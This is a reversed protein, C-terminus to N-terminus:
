PEGYLAEELAAVAKEYSPRGGFARVIEVLTGMKDFPHVRLLDITELGEVAEDVFKDLLGELVARALGGYADLIKRVRASRARERRTLLPDSFGVYALVDVTAYDDGFAIALEGVGVGRRELEALIAAKEGRTAWRRRLEGLSAFLARLTERAHEALSAEIRKGDPGYREVNERVVMVGEDDIYIKPRRGGRRTAESATPLPAEGAAAPADGSPEPPVIPDGENPEYIQEPPGDFTRDEFLRTAGRFDMITFWMKGYDERVRTGRGIIQKFETISSIEQDIVILKCTQVDVGTTLLKSTTAIVPYRSAPLAFESVEAKGIPDDGTIKRVYRRDKLYEDANERALASRMREAHEIDQCFVITKAYPETERLYASVKRAVLETRQELVLSRDFEPRQYRRNKVQQGYKDRKGEGPIYGELDKDLDVRIVKYPALYGDEIGEKLSYTYLPEGFYDINSVEATEKPTATLGIQTASAFYNLIERWASNEAASGRHCEDVIVLDFFGSSFQKYINKEEDSGSVAQYLALYIEYSKDATRHEIKTMAPGFPQFDQNKAQDILINRDALFLVRKKAKAKWLRWIIQFAVYTKGTGTAMVLLLRSAGKAIAEVARNVAKLQYYRSPRAEMDLYWDQAAIPREAEHLQKHACYRRWLEEPPPFGDLPIERESQMATGSRDSELFADGNTSYALPVDLLGAYELAQQIGAGVTHNNDKVEIVAVPINPKYFLVVDARKPQGRLRAQEKVGKVIVRGPALPFEESVQSQIDWGMRELAPLIFKTIIDRESLAKKNM